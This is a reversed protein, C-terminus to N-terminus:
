KDDKCFVELNADLEASTKNDKAMETLMNNLMIRTEDMLINRVKNKTSNARIEEEVLDPKDPNDVFRDSNKQEFQLLKGKTESGELAAKKIVDANIKLEKITKSFSEFHAEKSQGIKELEKMNVAELTEVSNLIKNLKNQFYMGSFVLATM